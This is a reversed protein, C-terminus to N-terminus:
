EPTQDVSITASVIDGTTSPVVTGPHLKLIIGRLLSDTVPTWPPLDHYMELTAEFGCLGEGCFQDTTKWILRRIHGDLCLDIAGDPLNVRGSAIGNQAVWSVMKSWAHGWAEPIQGMGGVDFQAVYMLHISALNGRQGESTNRTPGEEWCGLFPLETEFVIQSGDDRWPRHKGTEALVAAPAQVVDLLPPSQRLYSYLFALISDLQVYQPERLSM